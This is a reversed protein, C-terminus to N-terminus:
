LCEPRHFSGVPLRCCSISVLFNVVHRSSVLRCKQKTYKEYLLYDTCGFRLTRGPKIKNMRDILIGNRMFSVRHIKLNWLIEADSLGPMTFPIVSQNEM